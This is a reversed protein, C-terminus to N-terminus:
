SQYVSVSVRGAVSHALGVAGVAVLLDASWGLRSAALAVATLPCGYAAALVAAAGFVALVTPSGGVLVTDGAVIGLTSGIALMPLFLGGVVGGVVLAVVLVVFAALLLLTPLPGAGGAYEVLHRGSGFLVPEGGTAWQAMPVVVVLAGGVLLVRARVPLTLAKASRVALAFGRGAAGGLLGLVAGAVVVEAGFPDASEGLLTGPHGLARGVGWAAAAGLALPLLDSNSPRGRRTVEVAFLAAALPADLVVAVAATAAALVHRRERRGHWQPVAAGLAGGFYVAPGEYGLSAGSGVGLLLALARAPASAVDFRDRQLGLVYADATGPGTRAVHVVLVALVAGVAPLFATVAGGRRSWWDILSELWGAAATFVVASLVASLGVAAVAIAERRAADRAWRRPREETIPATM